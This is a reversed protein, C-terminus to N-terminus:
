DIKVDFILNTYQAAAWEVIIRLFLRVVNLSMELVLVLIHQVVIKLLTFFALSSTQVGNQLILWNSILIRHM